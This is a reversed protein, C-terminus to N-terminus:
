LASWSFSLGITKPLEGASVAQIMCPQWLPFHFAVASRPIANGINQLGHLITRSGHCRMLM